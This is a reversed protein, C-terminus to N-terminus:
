VNIKNKQKTQFAQPVRFVRKWTLVSTGGSPVVQTESQAAKHTIM